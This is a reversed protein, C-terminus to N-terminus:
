FLSKSLLSNNSPLLNQLFFHNSHKFCCPLFSVKKVAFLPYITSIDALVMMEDKM